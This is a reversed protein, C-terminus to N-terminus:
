KMLWKIDGMRNMFELCIEREHDEEPLSNRMEQM